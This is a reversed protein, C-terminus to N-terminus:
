KACKLNLYEDKITDKTQKIFCQVKDNDFYGLLKHCDNCYVTGDITYFHSHICQQSHKLSRKSYYERINETQLEVWKDFDLSDNSKHAAYLLNTVYQILDIEDETMEQEAQSQLLSLESELKKRKKYWKQYELKYTEEITCRETFPTIHNILEAQKDIIQQKM